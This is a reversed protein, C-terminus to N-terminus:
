YAAPLPAPALLGENGRNQVLQIGLEKGDFVAPGGTRQEPPKVANDVENAKAVQSDLRRNVPARKGTRPHHDVVIGVVVVRVKPLRLPEETLPRDLEAPVPEVQEDAASTLHRFSKATVADIGSPDRFTRDLARGHRVLRPFRSTCM